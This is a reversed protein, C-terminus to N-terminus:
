QAFLERLASRRSSAESVTLSLRLEKLTPVQLEDAKKKAAAKEEPKADPKVAILIHAADRQEPKSYQKLNHDYQARVEAADPV